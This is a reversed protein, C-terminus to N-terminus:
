GRIIKTELPWRPTKATAPGYGLRGLMQITHGPKALLKHAQQYHEVMEPYEQLAQSVPHLSLGLGTTALNLRVWKRGVTIQEERTNDASSILAYAHTSNLMEKYSKAGEKFSTSNIDALAERNVIGLLQMSEFFPGSLDIGDPKANVEAKGIRMLDVSEQLTRPTYMEVQWAAFTLEKIAAVKDKDTIIDAYASLTEASATNIARNEFPEKCSRRQMVHKFLPDAQLGTQAFTAIAVPGNEAETGEPFLDFEIKYGINSAAISMLELFCGMGITLQRDFPDTHPLNLKKDRYIVVKGQESLDVQWPQRNHPNPALLAYSLAWQRPDEYNGAVDWPALAKKPTRSSLFIGAGTAAAITGGGMIKLFNRKNM